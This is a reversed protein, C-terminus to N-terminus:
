ESLSSLLGADGKGSSPIGCILVAQCEGSLCLLPLGSLRCDAELGYDTPNLQYCTCLLIFPLTGCM